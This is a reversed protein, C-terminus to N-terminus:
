YIKINVINSILDFDKDDHLLFLDNEICTQVILFDITGSITIGKKRCKFYVRAAEEYSRLGNKLYYFRQTDLYRKLLNFKKETKTGQLLEQYIYPNIGFPIKIELVERFKSVKSSEVNKLYNILVSTDVLIM